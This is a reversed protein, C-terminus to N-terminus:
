KQMAARRGKGLTYLCLGLEKIKFIPDSAPIKSPPTKAVPEQSRTGSQPNETFDFNLSNTPIKSQPNETFGFKFGNALIKPQSNETFGFNM